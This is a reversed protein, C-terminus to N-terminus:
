RSRLSFGDQLAAASFIKRFVYYLASGAFCQLWADGPCGTSYLHIFQKLRQHRVESLSAEEKSARLM